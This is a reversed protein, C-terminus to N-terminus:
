EITKFRDLVPKFEEAAIRYNQRYTTTPDSSTQWLGYIIEGVRSSIGPYVPENRKNLVDDGTLKRYLNLNDAAIRNADIILSQPANETQKLATKIIEVKDKIDKSLEIAGRVARNLENVKKQFAVLEVRNEAPLTINDLIKAEFEVPGAVETLVGDISLSMTVFYKGPLVPSGSNDDDSSERIPNLSPYRL